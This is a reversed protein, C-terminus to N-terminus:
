THYEANITIYEHTLDCTWLTVEAEGMGLDLRLSFEALRFIAAAAQDVGAVMAGGKVLRVQDYGEAEAWLSIQNQDIAVGARGAAALVRGWNPDGGAIATKVLPSSAITRGVQLAQQRSGGGTVVLSIFKNAGEGDRVIAQALHQCLLRLGDSFLEQSQSSGIEIGSAGNALLLVSDNTSTDGDVSICNFSEGVALALWRQLSEQPIVADTTLIALMTAMDPHIMGAGKAVGGITVVGEPLEIEVSAHKPRTDTTMIARAVQQGQGRSLSEAALKIGRAMRRMDLPVGIVGTSVVLIQDAQCDLAQATLLQTERAAKLGQPGTCANAVGANAAVGRIRASSRALTERDLLVPAAAVENKTFVGAASGARSCDILALDLDGSTKM